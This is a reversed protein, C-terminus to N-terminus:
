SAKAESHGAADGVGTAEVVVYTSHRAVVSVAREGEPLEHGALV